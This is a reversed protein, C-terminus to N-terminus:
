RNADPALLFLLAQPGDRTMSVVSWGEAEWVQLQRRADDLAGEPTDVRELRVTARPAAVVTDVPTLTPPVPRALERTAVEAAEDVEDAGTSWPSELRIAVVRGKLPAEGVRGFTWGSGDDPSEVMPYTSEMERDTSKADPGDLRDLDPVRVGPFGTKRASPVASGEIVAICRWACTQWSSAATTKLWVRTGYPARLVLSSLESCDVSGKVGSPFIQIVTRKAAMNPKSYAVLDARLRGVVEFAINAM